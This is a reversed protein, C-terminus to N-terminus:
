VAVHRHDHGAGKIMALIRAAPTAADAYGLAVPVLRNPFNPISVIAILDRVIASGLAAM